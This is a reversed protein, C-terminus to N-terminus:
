SSITFIERFCIDAINETRSIISEENWLMHDYEEGCIIELHNILDTNIDLSSGTQYVSVKGKEIEQDGVLSLQKLRYNSAASNPSHLLITLNGIKHKYLESEENPIGWFTNSDKPLIHEITMRSFNTVTEDSVQGSLYDNYKVLIYRIKFNNKGNAYIANNFGDKFRAESPLKRSLESILKDFVRSVASKRQSTSTIDCAKQLDIAYGSYMREVKNAREGCITNFYFTFNEISSIIKLPNYFKVKNFNRLITMLLVNVQTVNMEKIFSLSQIIDDVNATNSGIRARLSDKNDISLEKYIESDDRFQKLLKPYGISRVKDKIGKYLPRYTLFSYRSLWFYRVFKKIEDGTDNINSLMLGWHKEADEAEQGENLERFFLNKLLDAVSLDLGRANTTEFIEYAVEESQVSIKVIELRRLQVNIKRLKEIKEPKTDLEELTSLISKKIILYNSIIRLEEKSLIIGDINKNTDVIQKKTYNKLNTTSGDLHTKKGEQIYSNFFKETSLGPQVRFVKSDSRPDTYELNDLFATGNNDNRGKYQIYLDLLVRSFITTTLFRQQGDIIEIQREDENAVNLIISGIFFSREDSSNVDSIFEDIHTKTWQYPRQYRPIIFQVKRDFFCEGITANTATFNNRPM